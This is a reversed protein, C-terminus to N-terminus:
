EAEEAARLLSDMSRQGRFRAIQQPTYGLKEMAGEWPLLGSDYEKIVGDALQGYTQFEPDAWILESDVPVDSEGAFIRGIRVTEEAPDGLDLHKRRILAVLGTEASKIADGSPSQGTQFLYHRPIRKITSLDQLDREHSQLFQGIDTETFEGFKVDKNDVVMLRDMWVDFPEALKMKQRGDDDLVPDGDSDVVPEDDLVLGTAWKQKFSAFWIAIVRALITENIRDQIATVDALDSEGGHKLQKRVALPTYSLRARNVLPVIPIGDWGAPNPEFADNGPLPVWGGLSGVLTDRRFRYLGAPKGDQARLFLEAADQGTWEDTYMKLAARRRHRSGPEHEVICQTPDEAAITPFEDRPRKWVSLYSRGKAFSTEAALPFDADMESAQWIRWAFLDDQYNSEAGLRFGTPRCRDVYAAIVTDMFNANSRALIASYDQEIRSRVKGPAQPFPHDGVFYRWWWDMTPSDDRIKRSLRDVWWIPSGSQLGDPPLNVAAM